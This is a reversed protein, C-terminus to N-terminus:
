KNLWDDRSIGAQKFIKALLDVSIDSRHPNPIIVSKGGKSMVPHKGEQHPGIWGLARMKRIFTGWSVPFLRPM